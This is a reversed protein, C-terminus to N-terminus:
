GLMVAEYSSAQHTYLGDIGKDRLAKIVGMNVGAPFPAMKADRPKITHWYTVQSMLDPTQKVWDIMEAMSSVKGTLRNM